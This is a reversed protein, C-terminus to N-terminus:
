RVLLQLATMMMVAIGFSGWLLRAQARELRDVEEQYRRISTQVSRRGRLHRPFALVVAAKRQM